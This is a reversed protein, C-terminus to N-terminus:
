ERSSKKQHSQVHERIKSFYGNMYGFCIGCGWQINLHIALLHCYAYDDNLCTHPCFCCVIACAAGGKRMQIGDSGDSFHTGGEFIKGFADNYHTHDENLMLIMTLHMVKKVAVAKLQCLNPDRCRFGQDVPMLDHFDLCRKTSEMNVAIVDLVQHLIRSKNITPRGTAVPVGMGGTLPSSPLSSLAGHGTPFPRLTNGLTIKCEKEPPLDITPALVPNLPLTPVLQIINSTLAVSCKGPIKAGETIVTSILNSISKCFEEEADAMESSGDGSGDRGTLCNSMSRHQEVLARYAKARECSICASIKNEVQWMDALTHAGQIEDM